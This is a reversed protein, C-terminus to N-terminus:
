TTIEKEWDHILDITEQWGNCCSHLYAISNKVDEKEEFCAGDAKMISQKKELEEIDVECETLKKHAASLALYLIVQKESILDSEKNTDDTKSLQDEGFFLVDSYGDVDVAYKLNPERFDNINYITGKAIENGDSNVISVKDKVKLEM